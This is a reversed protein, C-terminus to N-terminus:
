FDTFTLTKNCFNQQNFYTHESLIYYEKDTFERETMLFSIIGVGLTKNNIVEVPNFFLTLTTYAPVTCDLGIFPHDSIIRNLNSIRHMIQEEIKQGFEILVAKESISYIIFNAHNLAM